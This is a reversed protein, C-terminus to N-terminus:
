NKKVNSQSYIEIENLIVDEVLGSAGKFGVEHAMKRLIKKNESTIRFRMTSEEYTWVKGSKSRITKKAM